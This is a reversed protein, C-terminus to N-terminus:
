LDQIDLYLEANTVESYECPTKLTLAGRSWVSFSSPDTLTVHSCSSCLPQSHSALSFIFPFSTTQSTERSFLIFEFHLQFRSPFFVNLNVKFCRSALCLSLSNKQSIDLTLGIGIKVLFPFSVLSKWPIYDQLITVNYVM